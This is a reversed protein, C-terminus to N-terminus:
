ENIGMHMTQTIEWVGMWIGWEKGRGGESGPLDQEARILLKTSSFVLM